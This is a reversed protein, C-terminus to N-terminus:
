PRSGNYNEGEKNHKKSWELAEESDVVLGLPITESEKIERIFWPLNVIGYNREVRRLLEDGDILRM